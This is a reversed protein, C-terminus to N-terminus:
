DLEEAMDIIEVPSRKARRPKAKAVTAAGDGVPEGLRAEVQRDGHRLVIKGADIEALTWGSIESGEAMWDAPSTGLKVLARPTGGIEMVGTLTMAPLRIEAAVVTKAEPPAPPRRGETFLPRAAIEDFSALRPPALRVREVPASAPPDGLPQISALSAAPARTMDIVALGLGVCLGALLLNIRMIRTM